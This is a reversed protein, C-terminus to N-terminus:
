LRNSQKVIDTIRIGYNEDIVVVEGKAIYKGNVLIDVAEGSLKELEIVTGTNFDLVEKITKKARGLEVTIELPVDKILEISENGVFNNNPADFSQFQAPRVDVPSQVPQQVPQQQYGYNVPQQYPNQQQPYGYGQTQQQYQPQAQQQAPPQPMQVQPQPQPEPIVKGKKPANEATGGGGPLIQNVLSRAFSIPLLQMMESDIIDGVEMKFSIKVISSDESTLQELYENTGNFDMVFAKPPQIDIKKNFMSSLSTASSGIMQNMAEGIASLHLESIEGSINTGDGGMMIDAIKKVDNEKLILLNSGLIGEKYEVKVAINPEPYEEALKKLSTITVKPTTIVVKNNLLTSFTTAATGMSINGIEGLADREVDSMKESDDENLETESVVDTAMNNEEVEEGDIGADDVGKLLADIEEQSLMDGM